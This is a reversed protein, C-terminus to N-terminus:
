NVSMTNMGATTMNTTFKHSVGITHQYPIMIRFLSENWAVYALSWSQVPLFPLQLSVLFGQEKEGFVPPHCVNSASHPADGELRSNAPAMTSNGRNLDPM